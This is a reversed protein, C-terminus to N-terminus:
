WGPHQKALRRYMAALAQHHIRDGMVLARTAMWEHREAKEKMSEM